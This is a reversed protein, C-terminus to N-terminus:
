WRVFIDESVVRMDRYTSRARGLHKRMLGGSDRPSVQRSALEDDHEARTKVVDEWSGRRM